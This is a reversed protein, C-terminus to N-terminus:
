HIRCRTMGIAFLTKKVTESVLDSVVKIGVDYAPKGLKKLVKQLRIAAVEVKPTDAVLETVAATAIVLDGQEFGLEELMEIANAIASQQWPHASGCAGCYKPPPFGALVIVGSDWNMGPINANCVPCATVTEAGCKSCFAERQEPMRIASETIKHGNRCVQMVDIGNTYGPNYSFSM